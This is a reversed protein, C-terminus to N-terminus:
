LDLEESTTDVLDELEEGVGLHEECELSGCSEVSAMWIKSESFHDDMGYLRSKLIKELVPQM